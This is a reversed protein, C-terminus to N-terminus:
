RNSKNDGNQEFHEDFYKVLGNSNARIFINSGPLVSGLESAKIPKLDNALVRENTKKDVIFGEPGVKKDLYDLIDKINDKSFVVEIKETM